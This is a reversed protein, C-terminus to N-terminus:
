ATLMRSFVEALRGEPLGANRAGNTAWTTIHVLTADHDVIQSKHSFLAASKRDFFDTVDVCVEPLGLYSPCGGLWVEPVTWPELGDELLEPHAFPNRADPYVADVAAQGAAVHDPHGAYVRALNKVPSQTIVLTPRFQRIVRSIDRRLEFTNALRGDPYGLFYLEEVGVEKAAATQEAQRLLAMDARPMTRDDGGADGDTVLCYAVVGGRATFSAVSGAASFDVDDPHATIVLTREPVDTVLTAM